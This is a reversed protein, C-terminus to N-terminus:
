FRLDYFTRLMAEANEIPTDPGVQGYGIYGGTALGFAAYTKRVHDTVDEPTGTLLM